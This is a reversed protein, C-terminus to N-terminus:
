WTAAPWWRTPSGSPPQQRGVMALASAAAVLATWKKMPEERQMWVVLLISSEM